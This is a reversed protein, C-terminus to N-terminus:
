DGGQCEDLLSRTQTTMFHDAGLHELCTDFARRFWPEAAACGHETRAIEGLAAWPFALQPHGEPHMQELLTACATLQARADPFDGARQAIKGLSCLSAAVLEHEEGFLERELDLAENAMQEAEKLQSRQALIPALNHLARAITPHKAPIAGGRMALIERLLQETETQDGGIKLRVVLMEGLVEAVYANESGGMVERLLPLAEEFITAAEEFRGQLHLATGLGALSRGLSPGTNSGERRAEVALRYLRESTQYDGRNQAGNALGDLCRLIEPDTDAFHGRLVALADTLLAEGEDHRSQRVLALGLGRQIRARQVPDGATMDLARRYLNEAARHDRRWWELEGLQYLSLVEADGGRRLEHAELHLSEAKDFLGLSVYVKAMAALLTAQSAPDGDLQRRITPAAQDLIERATLERGQAYEPDSATLADVFAGLTLEARDRQRDSIRTQRILALLFGFLVVAAVTAAAVWLRHRRAFKRLRYSVSGRRALVPLDDLYRGIDEAFAGVSAYRHEPEKRLAKLVITDLDGRLDRTITNTTDGTRAAASPKVPEQEQIAAQLPVDSQDDDDLKYPSKGTLLEYLVVGLSYVDSATTVLKGRIQEPSAYAPTMPHRGARTAGADRGEELSKAIGFDLLKPVGDEDVLINAPKLDRHVLLARHAYEVAACVQQFLRLRADVGLDAKRCYTDIRIGEVHEMVLFPRGEDTGGDYLRAINPHELGALIQRESRFRILAETDHRHRILKVAVNRQFEEDDRTALYVAGMGGEGILQVLKYPGVMRGVETVPSELAWDDPLRETSPRPILPADLFAGSKDQALAREIEARDEDALEAADLYAAREAPPLDVAAAVIEQVREWNVAM